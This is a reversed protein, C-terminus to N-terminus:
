EREDVPRIPCGAALDDDDLSNGSLIIGRGPACSGVAGISPTVGPGDDFVIGMEAAAGTMRGRGDVFFLEPDVSSPSRGHRARSGHFGHGWIMRSCPSGTASGRPRHRPKTAAGGGAIPTLRERNSLHLPFRSVSEQQERRTAWSRRYEINVWGRRVVGQRKRKVSSVSELRKRRWWSVSGSRM